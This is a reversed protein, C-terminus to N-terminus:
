KSILITEDFYFSFHPKRVEHLYTFLRDSSASFPFIGNITKNISIVQTINSMGSHSLFPPHYTGQELDRELNVMEHDEGIVTSNSSRYEPSSGLDPSGHNEKLKLIFSRLRPDDATAQPASSVPLPLPAPCGGCAPSPLVFWYVPYQRQINNFFCALVLVVVSSLIVIPLYYWGLNYVGPDSAVLLATAGAPPHTTKTIKMAVIALGTSLAGAFWRVEQPLIERGDGIL